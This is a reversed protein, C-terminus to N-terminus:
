PEGFPAYSHGDGLVQYGDDTITVIEGARYGGVGDEWIAPELVLVTGADLVIQQDAEAGADSGGIPAEASEVGIGHFLYLHELWPRTGGAAEVAVQCLEHGTVGPGLREYLADMVANWRDFLALEDENPGRGCLWTRGFDSTYGHFAIGSDVWVLDGEHYQPDGVGTPFAVGGTTTRPGDAISRPMAQFIPDVLNPGAEGDIVAALFAAAVDHRAADPVFAAAAATMAANNARQARDICTVEDPTKVRRAANVLAAADAAGAFVDQRLMAGTWLDVALRAEPGAATTVESRLRGMEEDLTPRVGDAADVDLGDPDGGILVPREAGAVVVAITAQHIAHTVDIGMNPHGTAYAVNPQHVLVLADVDSGALEAQLRQHRARHMRALDLGPAAM